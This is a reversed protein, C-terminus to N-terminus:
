IGPGEEEATDRAERVSRGGSRASREAQTEVDPRHQYEGIEGRGHPFRVHGEIIEYPGELEQIERIIKAARRIAKERDRLNRKTLTGEPHNPTFDVTGIGGGWAYELQSLASRLEVSEHRRNQDLRDAIHGRVTTPRALVPRTEESLATSISRDQFRRYDLQKSPDFTSTSVIELTAPDVVVGPALPEPVVYPNEAPDAFPHTSAWEDHQRRIALRNRNYAARGTVIREENGRAAVLAKNPGSVKGAAAKAGGVRVRYAEARREDPTMKPGARRLVDPVSTGTKIFALVSEPTYGTEVFHMAIAQDAPDLDGFGLADASPPEDPEDHSDVPIFAVGARRLVEDAPSVLASAAEEPSLPAIPPRHGPPTLDADTPGVPPEYFDGLPRRSDGYETARSHPTPSSGESPHPTEM